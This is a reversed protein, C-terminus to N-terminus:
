LSLETMSRTVSLANKLSKDITYQKGSNKEPTRKGVAKTTYM